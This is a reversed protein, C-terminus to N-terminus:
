SRLSKRRAYYQVTEQIAKRKQEDIGSFTLRTLYIMNPSIERSEQVTGTIQIPEIKVPLKVKLDLCTSADFAKRTTILMGLESINKTQSLDRDVLNNDIKRGYAVMFHVDARDYHRKDTETENM